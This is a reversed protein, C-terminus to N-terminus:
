TLSTPATVALSRGSTASTPSPKCESCASSSIESIPLADHLSLTYIEFNGDRSSAFAIKGNAGPFAAEAPKTAAGACALLAGTFVVYIVASRVNWRNTRGAPTTSKNSSFLSM